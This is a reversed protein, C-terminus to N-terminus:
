AVRAPTEAVVVVPWEDTVRELAAVEEPSLSGDVVAIGLYGRAALDAISRAQLPSCRADCFSLPASAMRGAAKALPSFDEKSLHGALAQTLAM